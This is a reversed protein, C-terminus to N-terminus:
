SLSSSLFTEVHHHHTELHQRRIDHTTANHDGILMPAFPTPAFPTQGGPHCRSVARYDTIM